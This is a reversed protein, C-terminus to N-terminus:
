PIPRSYSRDPLRRIPEQPARYVSQSGYRTESVRDSASSRRRITRHRVPLRRPMESRVEREQDNPQPAFTIKLGLLDGLSLRLNVDSKKALLPSISEKIIELCLDADLLFEQWTNEMGDNSIALQRAIRARLDETM